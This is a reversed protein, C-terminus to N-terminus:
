YEFLKMWLTNMVVSKEFEKASGSDIRILIGMKHNIITLFPNERNVKSSLSLFTDVVQSLIGESLILKKSLSEILHSELMNIVGRDRYIIGIEHIIRRIEKESLQRKEFIKNM